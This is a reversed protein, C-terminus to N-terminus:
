SSERVVLRVAGTPDGAPGPAGTLAAVVVEATRRGGAEPAISVTTLPPASVAAARLDDAGVVAVEAPVATGCRRLGHLVTLAVDDNYACIGSVGPSRERLRRVAEVAAAPDEPVVLVEPAALGREACVRAVGARRGEVWRRLREEATVACALERHGRDALHAAQLRGVRDNLADVGDADEGTGAGHVVVVDAGAARLEEREARGVPHLSVVARVSLAAALRALPPGGPTDFHVTLTLGHEGLARGLADILRLAPEGVPIDPMVLVVLDSRGSVLARGALSPAYGLERAAALVRERTADPIRAGPVGNLVYSVTARSVGARLAVDKSTPRSPLKSAPRGETM